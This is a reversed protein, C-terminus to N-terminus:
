GANSKLRPSAFRRACWVHCHPRQNLEVRMSVTVMVGAHVVLDLECLPAIGRLFQQRQAESVV